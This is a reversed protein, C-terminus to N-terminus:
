SLFAPLYIYGIKKGNSQNTIIASKAFSEEILVIDRTIAIVM